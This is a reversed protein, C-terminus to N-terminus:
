MREIPKWTTFNPADRYWTFTNAIFLGIDCDPTQRLLRSALSPAKLAIIVTLFSSSHTSHKWVTEDANWGVTMEKNSQCVDVLSRPVSHRQPPVLRRRSHRIPVAPKVVRYHSWYLSVKKNWHMRKVAHTLRFVFIYPILIYNKNREVDTFSRM